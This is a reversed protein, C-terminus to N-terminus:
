IEGESIITVQYKMPFLEPYLNELYENYTSTLGFAQYKDRLEKSSYVRTSTVTQTSEDFSHVTNTIADELEDIEQITFYGSQSLYALAEPISMQGGPILGIRFEDATTYTVEEDLSQRYKVEEYPM